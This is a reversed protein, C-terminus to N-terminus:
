LTPTTGVCKSLLELLDTRWGRVSLYISGLFLVNLVVLALVAPQHKLSEIIGVAVKGVEETAGPNM